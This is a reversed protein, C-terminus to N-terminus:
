SSILNENKEMSLVAAPQRHFVIHASSKMRLTFLIVGGAIMIEGCWFMMWSFEQPIYGAGESFLEKNHALTFSSKASHHNHVFSLYDWIFSIIVVLCGSALILKEFSSLKGSKGKLQWYITSIMLAIMTLSVLCPCIVPGIWPFPIIFLIDWTFLSSPWSLIVYLFVYYFIDWVAFAYLFFVFRQSANKGALIGIAILMIITAAERWFETGAIDPSIPVLPFKFGDPYYLKRMYVVVATELYGMAISFLTLWTITKTLEKKDITIPKM